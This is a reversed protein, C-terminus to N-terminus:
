IMKSPWTGKTQLVNTIKDALQDLPVRLINFLSLATFAVPANLDKGEVKTYVLFSFFTIIIPSAYWLTALNLTLILWLHFRTSFEGATAWMIYRSRLAKLEAARSENVIQAFREEWAFFKIIRINQLVENTAHIRKDTTAM